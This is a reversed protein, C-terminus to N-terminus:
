EDDEDGGYLTELVMPYEHLSDPGNMWSYVMMGAARLPLGTQQQVTAVAALANAGSRIHDIVLAKLVDLDEQKMM